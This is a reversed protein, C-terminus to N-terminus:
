NAAESALKWDSITMRIDGGPAKVVNFRRSVARATEGWALFIAPPDDFTARQFQHFGQRYANDDIARRIDELAADVSNNAYGSFSHIGTSHWFSFPRNVSTGSVMEMLLVDFDGAAIRQNFADVPVAELGMEVGIEALNRQVMLALREWLQVNEPILCVFKLTKSSPLAPGHSKLAKELTAAARGPDYLYQPASKDYAWHLPWAPGSAVTAHGRFAQDVIKARDVAYNLAKRVEVDSFIPRRANFVVGYVYARLFTHLEVSAESQLFERTEPGVEYLFDVDGRM